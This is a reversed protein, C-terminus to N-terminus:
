ETKIKEAERKAEEEAKKSVIGLREAEALREDIKILQAEINAIEQQKRVIDRTLGEKLNTLKDLDITQELTSIVKISYNDNKEITDAYSLITFGALIALLITLTKM